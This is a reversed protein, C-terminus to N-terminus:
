FSCLASSMVDLRAHRHVACPLTNGTGSVENAGSSAHDRIDTDSLEERETDCM